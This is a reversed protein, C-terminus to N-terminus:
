ATPSRVGVWEASVPIQIKGFAHSRSVGAGGTRDLHSPRSATGCTLGSGNPICDAYVTM